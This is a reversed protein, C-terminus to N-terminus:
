PLHHIDILNCHWWRLLTFPLIRLILLYFFSILRRISRIYNSKVAYLNRIFKWRKFFMFLYASPILLVIWHRGLAAGTGMNTTPSQIYFCVARSPGWLFHFIFVTWYYKLKAWILYKNREVQWIYRCSVLQYM